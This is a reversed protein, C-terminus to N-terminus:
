EFIAEEMSDKVFLKNEQHTKEDQSTEKVWVQSHDDEQFLEKQKQKRKCYKLNQVWFM